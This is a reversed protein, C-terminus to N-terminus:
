SFIFIWIKALIAMFYLFLFLGKWFEIKQAFIGLQKFLQFLKNWGITKKNKLIM